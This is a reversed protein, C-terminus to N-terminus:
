QFSCIERIASDLSLRPISEAGVAWVLDFLM